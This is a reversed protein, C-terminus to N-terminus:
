NYKYETSYLVSQICLSFYSIVATFHLFVNGSHSQEANLIHFLCTINELVIATTNLLVDSPSIVPNIDM